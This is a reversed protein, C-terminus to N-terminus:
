KQLLEAIDKLVADVKGTLIYYRGAKGLSNPKKIVEFSSTAFGKEEMASLHFSVLRRDEKIAEAIEDIYMSRDAKRLVEVIKYRVPHLLIAGEKLVDESM